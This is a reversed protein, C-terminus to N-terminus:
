KKAGASTFEAVMTELAQNFEVPKEQPIFHGSGAVLMVSPHLPKRDGKPNANINRLKPGLADLAAPVNRSYWGFMNRMASLAMNKDASGTAKTIREALAPDAGPAFLGRMFNASAEPYNEEFPKLFGGVMQAAKKEDNPVEFGTYFTDIGVVGIVRDGLRRAAEVSVSGGMSYGILVVRKLGLKEVVAAVDGGFAEVTYDKREHGSEGHGALDLRVVQRDKAFHEVQKDWYGRNCTWCHVFVLAPEGRGVTEYKIAVQDAATVTGTVPAKPACAGLLLAAAAFTTAVLIRYPRTM